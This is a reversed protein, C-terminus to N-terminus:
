MANQTADSYHGLAEFAEAADAFRDAQLLAIAEAYRGAPTVDKEEQKPQCGSLLGAALTLCLLLALLKRNNM